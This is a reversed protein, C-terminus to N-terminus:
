RRRTNSTGDKKNKSRKAGSSIAKMVAKMEEHTQPEKVNESEWTFAMIKKPDRIKKNKPLKLNVLWFTQYRITECVHRIVAKVTFGDYEERNKLAAFFEKPTLELFVELSM